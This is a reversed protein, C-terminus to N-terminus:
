DVLETGKEVEYMFRTKGAEEQFKYNRQVKYNNLINLLQCNCSHYTLTSIACHTGYM